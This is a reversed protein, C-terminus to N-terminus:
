VGPRKVGDVVTELAADMLSKRLKPADPDKEKPQPTVARPHFTVEVFGVHDTRFSQVGFEAALEFLKRYDSADM